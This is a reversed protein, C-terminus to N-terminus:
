PLSFNLLGASFFFLGVVAIQCKYKFRYYEGCFLAPADVAKESTPPKWVIYTSKVGEMPLTVSGPFWDEVLCSWPETSIVVDNCRNKKTQIKHLTCLEM